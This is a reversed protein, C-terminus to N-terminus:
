GADCRRCRDYGAPLRGRDDVARWLRRLVRAPSDRLLVGLRAVMEPKSAASTLWGAQGGQRYLRGYREATELYALVAAGHNNREVAVLAEEGADGRYLRGLEATVRALEAPTLREQLEACQLGTGLEVVQVAAFDGDDGGGATDVAVVYRRTALPPM